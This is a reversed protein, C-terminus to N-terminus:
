LGIYDALESFDWQWLGGSNKPFQSRFGISRQARKSMGRATEKDVQFAFAEEPTLYSCTFFFAVGRRKESATRNAGGGHITKGSLFLADGPKMEAPVTDNPDGKVTFDPWKHSGPIVRTAGNEDTFETVAILFNVAAEPASPGILNFVRFQGQDRHLIQAENGPNIEIAQAGSMWYSKDDEAFSLDLIDYLLDYDLIEQRFVKSHTVLNTLRKTRPGHITQTAANGSKSGMQLNAFPEELDQNLNQVQEPSLFGEVVVGGAERMAAYIKQAGDSAKVRPVNTPVTSPSM